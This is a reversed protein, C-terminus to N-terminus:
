FAEEIMAEALKQMEDLSSAKALIVDVAIDSFAVGSWGSKRLQAGFAAMMADQEDNIEVELERDKNIWASALWESV